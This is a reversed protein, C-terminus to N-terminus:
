LAPTPRLLSRVNDLTHIWAGRLIVTYAVALRRFTLGTIEVELYGEALEEEARLLMSRTQEAADHRQRRRAHNTM